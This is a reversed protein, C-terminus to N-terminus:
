ESAVDHVVKISLDHSTISKYRSGRGAPFMGGRVREGLVHVGTRTGTSKHIYVRVISSLTTSSSISITCIGKIMAVVGNDVM